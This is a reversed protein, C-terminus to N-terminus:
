FLVTTSDVIINEDVISVFVSSVFFTWKVEASFGCISYITKEHLQIFVSFVDM